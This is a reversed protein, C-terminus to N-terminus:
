RIAVMIIISVYPLMAHKLRSVCKNTQKLWYKLIRLSRKRRRATTAKTLLANHSDAWRREPPTKNPEARRSRERACSANVGLRNKGTSAAAFFGGSGCFREWKRAMSRIWERCAPMSRLLAYLGYQTHWRYFTSMNLLLM